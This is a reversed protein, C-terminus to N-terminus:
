REISGDLWGACARAGRKKFEENPVFRFVPTSVLDFCPGLGLPHPALREPTQTLFYRKADPVIGEPLFRRSVEQISALSLRRGEGGLTTDGAEHVLARLLDDVGHVPGGSARSALIIRANWNQFLVAGRLYPQRQYDFVAFNDGIEKIGAKVQAGHVRYLRNLQANVRRAYELLDVEGSSLLMVDQLYTAPGETFLMAPAGRGAGADPSIRYQVLDKEWVPVDLIDAGYWTHSYEHAFFSLVEERDILPFARVQGWAPDREYEAKMSKQPILGHIGRYVGNGGVNNPARNPFALVNILFFEHPAGGWYAQSTRVIREIGAHIEATTAYDTEGTVAVVVENPVTDLPGGTRQPLKFRHVRLKRSFTFITASGVSAGPQTDAWRRLDNSADAVEFSVQCRRADGEGPGCDLDVGRSSVLQWNEGPAEAAVTVRAPGPLAPVVLGTVSTFSWYDPQFLPSFVKIRDAPPGAGGGQLPGGSGQALTYGFGPDGPAPGDRCLQWSGGGHTTGPKGQIRWGGVAESDPTIEHYPGDAGAIGYSAPPLELEVCDTESDGALTPLTVAVHVGDTVSAPAPSFVYRIEHRGGTAAAVGSALVASAALGVASARLVLCANM